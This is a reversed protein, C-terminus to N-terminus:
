YFLANKLHPVSGFLFNEFSSVQIALVVSLVQEFEKTM